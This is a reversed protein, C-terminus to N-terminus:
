EEDEALTGLGRSPGCQGRQGMSESFLNQMECAKIVFVTPWVTCQPPLCAM